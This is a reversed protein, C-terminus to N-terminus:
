KRLLKFAHNWTGTKMGYQVWLICMPELLRSGEIGGIDIVSWGFERCIEDVTEKAESDNGCIFMDPPGAPFEPNVMHTHGVINFAKVIHSKPLWRQVQEGGSDTHGLALEPAGNEKFLLPNTVDIVVKGELTHPDAQKILNETGSWLSALVAVHAFDAAEKFTGSSAHSGARKKWNKIKESEPTRSGMMVDHGLAAFGIGLSQGVDGSGLIGINM